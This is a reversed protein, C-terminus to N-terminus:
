NKWNKAERAKELEAWKDRELNRTKQLGSNGIPLKRRDSSVTEVSGPSMKGLSLGTDLATELRAVKNKLLELVSNKRSAGRERRQASFKKIWRKQKLYSVFNKDANM